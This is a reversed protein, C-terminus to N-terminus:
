ASAFTVTYSVFVDFFAKFVEPELENNKVYEQELVNNFLFILVLPDMIKKTKLGEEIYSKYTATVIKGEGDKFIDKITMEARKFLDSVLSSCFSPIDKM